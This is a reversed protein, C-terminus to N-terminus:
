GAPRNRTLGMEHLREFVQEPTRALRAAIEAVTLNSRSLQRLEDAQAATWPHTSTRLRTPATMTCDGKQHTQQDGGDPARVRSKLMQAMSRRPMSAAAIASM